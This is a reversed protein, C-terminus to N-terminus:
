SDSAVSGLLYAALQTRNKLGSKTLMANMHKKVAAGSIYLATAIEANTAGRVLLQAVERERPTLALRDAAHGSSAAEPALGYGAAPAAAGTGSPETLRRLYALMREGRTDVVYYGAEALPGYARHRVGPVTGFGLSRHADDYYGLPPPSAIIRSGSGIYAFLMSLLDSRLADDDLQLADRALLFWGAPRAAPSRWGHLEAGSMAGFFPGSVPHSGLYALTDAHVPVIVFLAAIRGEPSRLAKVSGPVNALCGAVDASRLQLLGEEATIDYRFRAQSRPDSCRIRLDRATAAREAVYAEVEERHSPDLTEVYNATARAHRYHARIIPTGAHGLWESIEWSIDRPERTWALVRQEFYAIMREGAQRYQEPLRQRYADQASERVRDHLQWGGSAPCVFSLRTLRDFLAHPLKRGVLAELLEQHFTRPLSAALILDHLEGGEAETLWHLLLEDALPGTGPMYDPAGSEGSGTRMSEAAMSLTLPHGLSRLWAQDWQPEEAFGQLEMYERVDEYSLESLPLSVIMRRWAPSLLWPGRLAFRGAIVVILAQRLRPLLWERLWQDCDGAEEYHDIALIAPGAATCANLREVCREATDERHGGPAVAPEELRELVAECFAAPRGAIARMDLRVYRIGERAARRGLQRLLSSKGMGATGHVNMIREPRDSSRELMRLAYHLEFSRGVFSREEWDEVAEGFTTGALPLRGGEMKM